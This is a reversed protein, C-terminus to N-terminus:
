RASRQHSLAPVSPDARCAARSRAAGRSTRRRRGRHGALRDDIPHEARAFDDDAAPRRQHEARVVIEAQRQMGVHDLGRRRARARTRCRCSRIACPWRSAPAARAARAALEGVPEALAVGDDEAGAILRVQREDAAQAAGAVDDQDVAVAVGADVVRRALRAACTIPKRCLEGSLRRLFSSRSGALSAVPQDDDLPQIRNAAVDRRQALDDVHAAGVARVQEDVLRM